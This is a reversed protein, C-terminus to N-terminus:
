RNTRADWGPTVYVSVSKQGNRDTVIDARITLSGRTRQSINCLDGTFTFSSGTPAATFTLTLTRTTRPTGTKDVYINVFTSSTAGEKLNGASIYDSYKSDSIQDTGVNTVTRITNMSPNDKDPWLCYLDKDFVLRVEGTFRSNAAQLQEPNTVTAYAETVKPAELDTLTFPYTARFAYSEANDASSLASRGVAIFCYKQGYSLKFAPNTCDVVLGRASTATGEGNGLISESNVAETRVYDSLSEKLAYNAKQDFLSGATSPSANTGMAEFIRYYAKPDSGPIEIGSATSSGAGYKDGVTDKKFYNYLESGMQSSYPVIIYNIMTNSALSTQVTINSGSQRLTLVPRTIDKTWFRHVYVGEYRNGSATVLYAYYETNAQLGTVEVTTTASGVNPVRGSVLGAASGITSPQVVMNVTPRRLQSADFKQVTTPPHGESADEINPPTGGAQTIFDPALSKEPVIVYYVDGVRNDALALTMQVGSDGPIFTPHLSSMQPATQDSFERTVTYKNPSAIDQVLGRGLYDDLRDKSLSNKVNTVNNQNGTIVTVECNVTTNFAERDSVNDLSIFHIAFEYVKDERLYETSNEDNGTLLYPLRDAGEATNVLSIGATGVAESVLLSHQASVVPIQKWDANSSPDEPRIRRYLEFTCTKDLWMLLDWYTGTDASDTSYPTISFGIDIRKQKADGDVHTSKVDGMIAQAALTTFAPCNLQVMRNQMPSTDSLRAFKFQYTTGSGLNIGKGKEGTEETGEATGPFTVILRGETDMEMKVAEYNLGWEDPITSSNNPLSPLAVDSNGSKRVLTITEKLIDMLTDKAAAKDSETISTSGSTNKWTDYLTLLVRKTTTYMVNESFVVSVDSDAFPENTTGPAVRSFDMTATPPTNDLTNVTFKKVIESYNGMPKANDVAIYYIDYASEPQLGTIKAEADVNGNTKISGAAVKGAGGQGTQVQTKAVTSKLFEEDTSKWDSDRPPVPYESGAKMAVWYVTGPENIRCTIGVNTAGMDTQTMDTTFEPPTEDRTTFQLKKVPSSKIGDADALWFYLDYTVQEELMNVKDPLNMSAPYEVVNVQLTDSKNKGMPIRGYGLPDTFAFSLFENQTPATSGQPLLVYYLDCAKNTMVVAQPADKAISSMYPYENSSFAPVLDDPTEFRESYVPSIEGRADVLVASIFYTGSSTLGTLQSAVDTNSSEAEYSGSLLFGDGYSPKILSQKGADTNPIEGKAATTLGWYVTGPKNTATVSDATTPAVNQLKPYGSLLRPNESFEIAGAPDMEKGDVDATIGPRITITDPLMTITSGGENVVLHGIDGKGTVNTGVDLNVEDVAANIELKLESNTAQEDMTVSKAQADGLVLTSSPTRNIVDELNGALTFTNGEKGELAVNLIGYNDRCGDEFFSNSRFSGEPIYTRGETRVSVYQGTPADVVIKNAEVGRLLVSSNGMESSGGGAVVIRGLVQVNELVVNGLSVGGTIYLDGAIISDKLTVNTSNITLNGYVGGPAHTGPTNILNGIGVSMMRMAEGRTVNKQPRCTGDPYGSVLRALIAAQVYGRAYDSFERGDSFEIVEGSRKDLRMCRALLTIAQERTIPDYPKALTPSAGAFIGAKYAIRIDDYFWDETPHVDVFPIPGVDKYGYARNMMSVFEARTITKETSVDGGPYGHVIGWKQLKEVDPRVWEDVIAKATLSPLAVPVSLMMAMCLLLALLRKGTRKLTTQM